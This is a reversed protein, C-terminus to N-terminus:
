STKKSKISEYDPWLTNRLYYERFSFLQSARNIACDKSCSFQGLRGTGALAIPIHVFSTGLPMRNSNQEYSVNVSRSSNSHSKVKTLNVGGRLIDMGKLWNGNRLIDGSEHTKYRFLSPFMRHYTKTCTAWRESLNTNTADCRYYPDSAKQHLYFPLPFLEQSTSTNSDTSESLGFIDMMSFLSLADDWLM